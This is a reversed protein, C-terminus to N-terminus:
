WSSAAPWALWWRGLREEICWGSGPSAPLCFAFMVIRDPPFWGSLAGLPVMVAHARGLQPVETFGRVRLAGAISAREDHRRWHRWNMVLRDYTRWVCGVPAACCGM